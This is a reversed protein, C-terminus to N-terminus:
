SKGYVHTGPMTYGDSVLPSANLLKVVVVLVSHYAKPSAALEKETM